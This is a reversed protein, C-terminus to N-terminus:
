KNSNLDSSFKDIYTEFSGAESSSLKASITFLSLSFKLVFTCNKEFTDSNFSSLIPEIGAYM